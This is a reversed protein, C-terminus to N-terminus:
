RPVVTRVRMGGATDRALQEDLRDLLKQLDGIDHERYRKGNFEAESFGGLLRLIAAYAADRLAQVQAREADTLAM